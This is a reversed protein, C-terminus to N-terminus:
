RPGGGRLDLRQQRRNSIRIAQLPRAGAGRHSFPRGGDLLPTSERGQRQLAQGACTGRRLAAVGQGSDGPKGSSPPLAARSQRLFISRLHIYIPIALASCRDALFPVRCRGATKSITTTHEGMYATGIRYNRDLLSVLRGRGACSAQGAADEGLGTCASSPSAKRRPGAEFALPALHAHILPM